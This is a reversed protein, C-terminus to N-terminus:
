IIGTEAETPKSPQLLRKARAHLDVRETTLLFAVSLVAPTSLEEYVAASMPAARRLPASTPVAGRLQETSEKTM